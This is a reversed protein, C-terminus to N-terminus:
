IQINKTGIRFRSVSGFDSDLLVHPNYCHTAHEATAVQQHGGPEGEHHREAAAHVRDALVRLDVEGDPWVRDSNSNRHSNTPAHHSEEEAYLM